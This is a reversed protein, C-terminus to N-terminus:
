NPTEPEAVALRSLKVIRCPTPSNAPRIDVMITAGVQPPHLGVVKWLRPKRGEHVLSGKRIGSEAAKARAYRSVDRHVAWQDLADAAVKEAQERAISIPTRACALPLSPEGSGGKPSLM